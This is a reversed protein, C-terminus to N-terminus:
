SASLAETIAQHTPMAGGARWAAALTSEDLIERLLALSREYEILNAPWLVAGAGERLVEAAGFLRAGQEAQGHSTLAASVGAMCEAIGAQNGTEAHMKLGGKFLELARHYDGCHNAVYGLNHLLSPTEDRDGAEQFVKLCETYCREAEAYDNECRAIDGL